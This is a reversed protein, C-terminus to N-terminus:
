LTWKVSLLSATPDGRYRAYYVTFLTGDPLEVTAPYGIDDDDCDALRFEEDSIEGSPSVYRGCIGYPPRRRGYTLAFGGDSLKCLYPPSGCIGTKEWESWTKGGDDSYTKMITFYSDDETLHTRFLAIIRGSTLEACHVEHFQDSSYGGPIPCEAHKIFTVGRDDSIYVSFKDKREPDESFVEKGLYFIRGSKLLIPGHPCHM